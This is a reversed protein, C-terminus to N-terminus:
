QIAYLLVVFRLSQCLFCDGTRLTSLFRIAIFKGILFIVNISSYSQSLNSEHLQQKTWEYIEGTVNLRRTKLKWRAPLCPVVVFTLNLVVRCHHRKRATYCPVSDNRVSSSEVHRERAHKHREGRKVGKKKMHGYMNVMESEVRTNGKESPTM